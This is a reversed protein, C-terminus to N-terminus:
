RHDPLLGRSPFVPLRTVTAYEVAPVFVPLTLTLPPAGCAHLADTFTVAAGIGGTGVEGEAVVAGSLAHLIILTEHVFEAPAVPYLMLRHEALQTDTAALQGDEGNLSVEADSPM